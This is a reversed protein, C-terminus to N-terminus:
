LLHDAHIPLNHIRKGTAHFVANAIAGAVGVLGIEGLGKAGLSNVIDDVEDVFIVDIQNIDANVPVHYESLNHNMFRGVHHDMVSDEQLAMSIGWVVGGLIQSRATKANLVRGGAVASVVRTVKITGLDEDVKVEVFTAVHSNFSYKLTDIMGPSASGTEEINEKQLAMIDHIAIAKTEDKSAKIYGDKFVVDEFDQGALPSKDIKKALKLLQKGITECVAKVASGVSVATWSGGQLPAEPMLSDGLIFTVNEIPLGLTEAAIQTMVTYTGTGIDSTGSSVELHGNTSLVAKAACKQQQADWIGTAVGWGILQNGEKMSRPELSRSAWGFKEAGQQYCKMLDKSSFPRKTNQDEYAYNIIRFQLPDMKLAYALEDVASEIAHFATSAGPARMDIPTYTHLKVLEYEQKINECQYALGSWNVVVETYDEFQSTESYCTHEISQLMGNENASMAIRQITKPRHGFSFMQQRTLTVKVSRKLALAAMTAMFLNYQPRLGSGFGGGVYPSLVRVDKKSLGFVNTVYDHSNTIGQTKDYVTLKKDGEYIVISAFMEMPNNHEAGHIYEAEIKVAAKKFAKEADGRSVPPVFGTKGKAPAKFSADVNESLNTTPAEEEYTIEIVSAAYRALEFTEAIVLAVPQMSYLIRESHFPRFPHGSVSDQDKWKRDLWAPDGVNEHTFVKVVGEIALAKSVDIAIIKGRAITSNVVYGHLLDPVDYEATYKASGTVKLPGDVRSTPKGIYNTTLTM